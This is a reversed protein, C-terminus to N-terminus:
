NVMETTTVLEPSRLHCPNTNMRTTRESAFMSHVITFCICQEMHTQIVVESTPILDIAILHCLNEYIHASIRDSFTSRAIAFRPRQEMHTQNPVGSTAFQEPKMLYCWNIHTQANSQQCMFIGIKGSIMSQMITFCVYQKMHTRIAVGTATFGRTGNPPVLEYIHTHQKKVVHFCRKSKCDHKAHNHLM